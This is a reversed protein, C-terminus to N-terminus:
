QIEGLLVPHRVRNMVMSKKKEALLKKHAIRIQAERWEPMREKMTAQFDRMEKNLTFHCTLKRNKQEQM